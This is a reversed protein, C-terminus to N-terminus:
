SAKQQQNSTQKLRSIIFRGPMTIKGRSRRIEDFLQWIPNGIEGYRSLVCIEEAEKPPINLLEINYLLGKPNRKPPEQATSVQMRDKEILASLLKEAEEKENERIKANTKPPISSPNTKTKNTKDIEERTKRSTERFNAFDAQNQLPKPEEQLAVSQEQLAVPQEQLPEPPVQLAVPATQLPKPEEQLAAPQERLLQPQAYRPTGTVTEPQHDPAASAFLPLEVPTTVEETAIDILLIEEPLFIQKHAKKCISVYRQQIRASTLVHRLRYSIAEFLDIETLYNIINEVQEEDISWYEAIDFVIDDTIKLFAGNTRYIENEIYNYVAYGECGYKKKLRKIKIDQFRDTEAQYYSLGQKAM